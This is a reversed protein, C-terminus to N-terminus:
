AAEQEFSLVMARGKDTLHWISERGANDETEILGNEGLRAFSACWNKATIDSQFPTECSTQAPGTIFLSVLVRQAITEQSPGVKGAPKRPKKPELSIRRVGCAQLMLVGIEAEHAAAVKAWMTAVDGIPHSPQSGGFVRDPSCDSPGYPSALVASLVDTM